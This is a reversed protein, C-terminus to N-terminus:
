GTADLQVLDLVARAASGPAAVLRLQQGHAALQDHAHLLTQVGASALHTVGTLDVAVQLVGGRTASSLRRAFEDATAIDVPGRVRLLLGEPGAGDGSDGTPPEVDISFPPREPPVATADPASAVAAPRHLLHRVTVTTGRGSDHDVHLHDALREAMLLGRGRYTEAVDPTRWTGEDTIRCELVGDRGLVADIVVPGTTGAPYAHDVANAVAEWVALEVADRAEAAPDLGDLWGDLSRRLQRIADRETTTAVHLDGHPAPLRYAALATVDDDYGTRTLLEVTLQCVREAPTTPAGLPLARNTAADAAVEALEAMGDDISRHPREVLGDSYLLVVEGPALADAALRPPAGPAGTGLPGAAGDSLWRTTGDAAVVLPPPQGCSAYALAGTAPDLVVLAVTTARLRPTRAAYADARALAEEPPRGTALADGLVARMLGMASSARVGHGVVDGVVLALTGDPLPIADFWDGGAVQDRSAVLYRAAVRAERLVPLTSPLLAEQLATVVGRADAARQEAEAVQAEAEHRALVAATVDYAYTAVGTIRGSPTTTPSLHFDLYVEQLQGTSGPDVQLRWERATRSRGTAFVEDLLAFIHQGALEPLAERIPAGILDDRGFFARMAANAAVVTHQPGAYVASILPLQDFAARVVAAEGVTRELSAEDPEGDGPEPADRLDPGGSSPPQM